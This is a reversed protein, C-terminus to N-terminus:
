GYSSLANRCAAVAESLAQSGPASPDSLMEILDLVSPLASAVAAGDLEANAPMRILRHYAALLLLLQERQETSISGGVVDAVRRRLTRCRSSRDQWGQYFEPKLIEAEEESLVDILELLSLRQREEWRSDRDLDLGPEGEELYAWFWHDFSDRAPRLRAHGLLAVAHWAWGLVGKLALPDNGKTLEDPIRRVSDLANELTSITAM